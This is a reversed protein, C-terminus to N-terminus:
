NVACPTFIALLPVLAMFCPAIEQVIRPLRLRTILIQPPDLM